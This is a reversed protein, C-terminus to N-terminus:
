MVFAAVISGGTAGFQGLTALVIQATKSATNACALCAGGGLLLSLSIINHRGLRDVLFGSLLTAVIQGTVNLAFTVYSCVFCVCAPSLFTWLDSSLPLM